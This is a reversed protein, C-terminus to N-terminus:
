APLARPMTRPLLATCRRRWFLKGLAGGALRCAAEAKARAKKTRIIRDDRLNVSIYFKADDYACRIVFARDRSKGGIKTGRNIGPWDDLMGDISFLDNEVRVCVHDRAHADEGWACVGLVVFAAIKARLNDVKM